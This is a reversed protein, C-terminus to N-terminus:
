IYNDLDAHSLSSCSICPQKTNLIFRACSDFRIPCVTSFPILERYGIPYVTRFPALATYSIPGNSSEPRWPNDAILLERDTPAGPFRYLALHTRGQTVAADVTISLSGQLGTKHRCHNVTPPPLFDEFFPPPPCTNIPTLTFLQAATPQTSNMPTQQLHPPTNPPWMSIYPPTTCRFWSTQKRQTTNVRGGERGVVATAPVWHGAAQGSSKPPHPPTQFLGPGAVATEAAESTSAQTNSNCESPDTAFRFRHSFPKLMRISHCQTQLQHGAYAPSGYTVRVSARPNSDYGTVNSM